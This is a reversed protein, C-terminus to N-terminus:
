IGGMGNVSGKGKGMGRFGRMVMFLCVCIGMIWVRNGAVKRHPYVISIFSSCKLGVGLLFKWSLGLAQSRHM